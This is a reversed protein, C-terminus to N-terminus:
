EHTRGEVWVWLRHHDVINSVYIFIVSFLIYAWFSLGLIITAMEVVKILAVLVGILFVEAMAWPLLHDLLRGVLIPPERQWGLKVPLTLYLLGLLYLMPLIIIFGLVLLALGPFNHNALELAASFLNISRSQGSAEFALFPFSNAMLLVIIGTLSLAIVTDLPNRHGSSLRSKCRPCYISQNNACVLDREILLDCEHCAFVRNSRDAQAQEAM